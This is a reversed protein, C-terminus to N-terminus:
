SGPRLTEMLWRREKPDLGSLGALAGAYLAAGLGIVALPPWATRALAVGLGMIGSALLPGRVISTWGLSLGDRRLEALMLALSITEYVLLAIVAGVLGLRPVLLVMLGVNVVVGVLLLLTARNQRHVATLYITVPRRMSGVLLAWIMPAFITGATEFGDGLYAHILPMSLLSGGVVIPLAYVVMMKEFRTIASALAATGESVKRSLVPYLGSSIALPISRLFTLVQRAGLYFGTSTPGMLADVLLADVRGYLISVAKLGTFELGLRGLRSVDDRTIARPRTARLVSVAFPAGILLYFPALLSIIVDVTGGAFLVGVTLIAIGAREAAQWLSFPRLNEDAAPFALLYRTPTRVISALLLAVFDIGRGAYFLGLGLTAVVLVPTVLAFVAFSASLLEGRRAPEQAANRPIVDELSLGHVDSLVELWLLALLYQGLGDPGFLRALYGNSFLRVGLLVIQLFALWRVNRGLRSLTSGALPATSM